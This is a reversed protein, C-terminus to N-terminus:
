RCAQYRDCLCGTRPVTERLFELVLLDELGACCKDHTCHRRLLGVITGHIWIRCIVIFGGVADRRTAVSCWKACLRTDLYMSVRAQIIVEIAMLLMPRAANVVLVDLMRAGLRLDIRRPHEANRRQEAIAVPQEGTGLVVSCLM